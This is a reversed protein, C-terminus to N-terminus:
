EDDKGIFGGAIEIRSRARFDHLEEVFQVFLALREDKDGVVGVHGVVRAAGDAQAVALNFAIGASLDGPMETRTTRPRESACSLRVIRRPTFLRQSCRRRENSVTNPITKPTQETIAISAM